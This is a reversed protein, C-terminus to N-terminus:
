PTEYCGELLEPNDFKNGRIEIDGAVEFLDECINEWEYVFKGDSFRVVGYTDNHADYGISGEYLEGYYKDKLGTYQMLEVESFDLPVAKLDVWIEIKKLVYDVGAVLRMKKTKKEYARFKIERM